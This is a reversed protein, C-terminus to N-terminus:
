LECQRLFIAVLGSTKKKVKKSIKKSFKAFAEIAKKVNFANPSISIPEKILSHSITTIIHKINNADTVKIGVGPFEPAASRENKKNNSATRTEPNAKGAITM